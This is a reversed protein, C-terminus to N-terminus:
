GRGAAIAEVRCVGSRFAPFGSIPDLLDADVLLNANAEEWGAPMVAVDPQVDTTVVLRLEVRGVPSVVAVREGDAVRAGRAADPHVRVVPEPELLRIRAVQRFQSNIYARTRPGTVLLLPFEATPQRSPPVWEPLAPHGARELLSSALEIKGSPTGVLPSQAIQPDFGPVLEPAAPMPVRAAAEAEALTKWPFWQSLGMARALEFVVKWDPWAEHQPPVVGESEAFTAAPLVVHARRGSATLFPDVSVLLELREVARSLAKSGPSTVLANSAILVLARVPYPRDELIARALLNGQAERNFMEFLPHEDAGVPPAEVPPPVPEPTRLRPLAPLPGAGNASRVPTLDQRIEPEGARRCLAEVSAIARVTQVGNQHHEVGLGTWIGTPTETGLMRATRLLQEEQVGTLASVRGPPYHAALEALAEFGVAQQALPARDVLGERILLNVLGLALAGDTGPRVALHEAAAAALETRIPDVVVLRGETAMHAVVHSLLPTSHTPNSGWLVLTRTRRLDHRYKSGLTLAQGLRGSAECLSAVSAVNPTGWARALRHIWEMLPHRVLPWGTQFAAAQPGFRARVAAMREGVLGLAEEWSTEVLRDGHRLLPRRLRDPSHVVSPLARGHQCLFGQTEGATDGDVRLLTRDSVSGALACHLLCFRCKGHTTRAPAPARAVVAAAVGAVGAGAIPAARLLDRRSLRRRRSV